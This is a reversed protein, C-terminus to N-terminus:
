QWLRWNIAGKEKRPEGDSLVNGDEYSDSGAAAYDVRDEAIESLKKDAAKEQDLISQLINSAKDYGLVEAFTRLSGYRTIEYHEAAQGSFIIAADAASTKGFDKLIEEAEAVIGDIADCKVAKPAMDLLAFVQEVKTVHGETEKLHSTLADILDQSKAAKIMKPLAKTLKKEAYYIDKIGHLFLDALGKDKGSSTKKAAGAAKTSHTSTSPM